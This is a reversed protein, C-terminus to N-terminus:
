KAIVPICFEVRVIREPDLQPNNHYIQIHNRSADWLYPSLPLWQISVLHALDRVVDSQGEMYIVAYKGGPITVREIDHNPDFPLSTTICAMYRHKDPPTIYPDDPILGIYQSDCTLLDRAKMWGEVRAFVAGTSPGVEDMLIPGYYTCCVAQREPLQMVKIALRDYKAELMRRREDAAEKHVGTHRLFNALVADLRFLSRYETASSGTHQKFARAFHASSRLGCALAIDLLPREPQFVLLKAAKEVRLRNVFAHVNENMTQKFIRHFHHVSFAAIDALMEVSLPDGLHSEIYRVVRNIRNAYEKSQASQTHTPQM